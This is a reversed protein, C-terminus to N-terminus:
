TNLTAQQQMNQEVQYQQIDGALIAVCEDVLIEQVDEPAESEVNAASVTGPDYIDPTGAIAINTPYRYYTLSANSINLPFHFSGIIM